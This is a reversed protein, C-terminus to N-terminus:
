ASPQDGHPSAFIWYKYLFYNWVTTSAVSVLKGVVWAMGLADFSAVIATTALTNFGVLLTYRAASQVWGAASDFTLMRQLVYTAAFSLLFAAPTAVVLPVGFVEHLAALLGIDILFAGVGVVLYRVASHSWVRRMAQTLSGFRRVTM